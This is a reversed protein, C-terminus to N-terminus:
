IYGSKNDDYLIIIFATSLKNVVNFGTESSLHSTFHLPHLTPNFKYLHPTDLKKNLLLEYRLIWAMGLTLNM